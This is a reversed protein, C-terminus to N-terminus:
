SRDSKPSSGGVPVIKLTPKGDEDEAPKAVAAEPNEESGEDGRRAALRKAKDESKQKKALERQRKKFTQRSSKAMHTGGKGPPQGTGSRRMIVASVVETPAILSSCDPSGIKTGTAAVVM